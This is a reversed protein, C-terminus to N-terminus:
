PRYRFSPLVTIGGSLQDVLILERNNEIQRKRIKVHGKRESEFRTALGDVMVTVGAHLQSLVEVVPEGQPKSSAILKEKQHTMETIRGRLNEAECMLETARERQSPTLRKLAAVLPRVAAEIKEAAEEHKHIREELKRVQQRIRPDVGVSLITKVSADNGLIRVEAGKRAHAWGGILAGRPLLLCGETTIQSNMAEKIIEVDDAAQVTVADCFKASVRGGATIRGKDKGSIGGRIFIDEGAELAAAGVHTQVSVSKRSRVVFLDQV